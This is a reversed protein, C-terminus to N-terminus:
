INFFEKKDCIYDPIFTLQLSFIMSLYSWKIVRWCAKDLARQNHANALPIYVSIFIAHTLGAASLNIILLDTTPLRHCRKAHLFCNSVCLCVQSSACCLISIRFYRCAAAQILCVCVARANGATTLLFADFSKPQFCM